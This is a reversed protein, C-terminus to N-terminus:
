AAKTLEVMQSEMQVIAKGRATADFPKGPEAGRLLAIHEERLRIYDAEDLNVGLFKPRDSDAASPASTIPTPAAWGIMALWIGTACLFLALLIRPNFAGSNGSSKKPM